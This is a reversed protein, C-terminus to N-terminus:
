YINIYTKQTIPSYNDSNFVHEISYVVGSIHKNNSDDDVYNVSIKNGVSINNFKEFNNLVVKTNTKLDMIILKM